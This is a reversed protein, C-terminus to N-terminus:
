HAKEIGGVEIKTGAEETPTWCGAQNIEPIPTVSCIPEKLRVAAMEESAGYAQEKYYSLEQQKFFFGYLLCSRENSYVWTGQLLWCIRDEM